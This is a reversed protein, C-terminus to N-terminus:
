QKAYGSLLYLTRERTDLRPNSKSNGSYVWFLASEFEEENLISEELSGRWIDIEGRDYAAHCSVCLPIIEEPGVTSGKKRKAEGLAIVHAAELKCGSAGCIRCRGEDDVKRRAYKYIYRGM